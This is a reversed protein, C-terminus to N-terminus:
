PSGGGATLVRAARERLAARMFDALSVQECAAALFLLLQERDRNALRTNWIRALPVKTRRAPRRM